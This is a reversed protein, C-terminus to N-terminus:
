YNIHTKLLYAQTLWEKTKHSRMAWINALKVYCEGEATALLLGKLKYGDKIVFDLFRGELCFETVETNYSESM